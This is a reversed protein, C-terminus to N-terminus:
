TSLSKTNDDWETIKMTVKTALSLDTAQPSFIKAVECHDADHYLTNTEYFIVVAEKFILRCITLLATGVSQLTDEMHSSGASSETDTESDSSQYLKEIFPQMKGAHKLPTNFTLVYEFILNRTEPALKELLPCAM